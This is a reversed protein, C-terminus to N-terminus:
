FWQKHQQKTELNHGVRPVGQVTAQWAERDVPKGLCSCQFPNGNGKGNMIRQLNQADFHFNIPEIDKSLSLLYATCHPPFLVEGVVNFKRDHSNYTYKPRQSFSKL